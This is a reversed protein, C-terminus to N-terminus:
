APVVQETVQHACTIGKGRLQARRIQIMPFASAGGAIYKLRFNRDWATKDFQEERSQDPTIINGSDLSFQHVGALDMDDVSVRHCLMGAASTYWNGRADLPFEEGPPMTLEYSYHADDPPPTGAFIAFMRKNSAIIPMVAELVEKLARTRTIEDFFLNGGWGVAQMPDGAIVKTRSYVSNSHWIKTEFKSHDFIDVADDPQLGDISSEIKRQLRKEKLAEVARMEELVRQWTAALERLMDEWTIKQKYLVEAGAAKNCSVIINLNGPEEMNSELARYCLTTSKRARRSWSLFMVRAARQWFAEEQYATLRIIPQSPSTIPTQLVSNPTRLLPISTTRPPPLNSRPLVVLGGGPSAVPRVERGGRPSM